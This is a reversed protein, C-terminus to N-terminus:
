SLFFFFPHTLVAKVDVIKKKEALSINVFIYKGNCMYNRLEKVFANERLAFIEFAALRFTLVELLRSVVGAKLEDLSADDNGGGDGVFLGCM